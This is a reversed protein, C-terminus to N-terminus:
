GIMETEGGEGSLSLLKQETLGSLLSRLTDSGGQSGGRPLELLPQVLVHIQDHPQSSSSESQSRGSGSPPPHRRRM